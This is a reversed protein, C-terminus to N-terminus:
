FGHCTTREFSNNLLAMGQSNSLFTYGDGIGTRDPKSMDNMKDLLLLLNEGAKRRIREDSGLSDIFERRDVESVDRLQWLFRFVKRLFLQDRIQLGAKTIGIVTGVIPFDRILGERLTQDLLVETVDATLQNLNPSAFTELIALSPKDEKM